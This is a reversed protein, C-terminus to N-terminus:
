PKPFIGGKVNTLGPVFSYSYRNCEKEFVRDKGHIFM